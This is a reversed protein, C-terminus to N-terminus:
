DWLCQGNWWRCWGLSKPMPSKGNSTTARSSRPRRHTAYIASLQCPHQWRTSQKWGYRINRTTDMTFNVTQVESWQVNGDTQEEHHYLGITREGGVMEMTTSCVVKINLPSPLAGQALLLCLLSSFMTCELILPFHYIFLNSNFPHPHQKVRVIDVAGFCYSGSLSSSEVHGGASCFTTGHGERLVWRWMPITQTMQIMPTKHPIWHLVPIM